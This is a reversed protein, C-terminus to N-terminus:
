DGHEIIRHVYDEPLGPISAPIITSNLRRSQLLTAVRPDAAVTQSVVVGGGRALRPLRAAVSVTTGFYDLHDNLTAVMAPGRHVGVRLRLHSTQEGGALAPGLDLAAQFAAVPESFAAVIGENVTKVLAGGHRKLCDDLRRFQEHILAFARADGMELYLDGAHDLDTVVLTVTALNLLQGPSLVEGPFLERFLALASARAATLADDRPATREVRVVLERDTDNTLAIVQGGARLRRPLETGPGRSLWLDWRRTVATPEVRFDVTFPLQPGRLRYAGEGLALDLAIHEGPGVRVQAAVHPSHAPGGICYTGLETERIEPHARFIVEVSNAFDLEYDLHCAECRGHERLARLTEVVESPIRCIPCLLDWLLLLAGDKAGHMCAAVVQDAALGLRRALALPRIRAVEQAPAQALFDGMREVVMPDIGHQGLTALWRDLRQRRERALVPPPEFPDIVPDHGLEGTLCADIRRYVEDMSRRAQSGIKINAVARGLLGKVAIRVSHTLTTGGDGRPTLEVISVLWQFPGQRFERLVGLRRGEVWEFPHERWSVHLGATKLRGFRKVGEDPDYETAFPVAPLGLARNLRDTNSVHPWLQRPSADLEWRFDFRVLDRPDCEPLRPHVGIGTPEGRLLRELDLLMEGADAYRAEPQKALAKTVVQGVAESVSDNLETLAPPPDNRHKAFLGHMTGGMFPPRGALLHFLTAGMAYVDAPPGVKETGSAQEPAIYYPTGVIAGAQTLVLSETEVVHRALGFDLLKVRLATRPSSTVVTAATSEAPGSLRDPGDEDEDEDQLLLINEPKIDRHIIGREHAVALGRAVDAMIALATPEDLRVRRALVDALSSGRVYELALFHVGDDENLEILNAVFPNNAEALLRAEKYLRRLAEPRRAWYGRLVKIAVPSGDAPDEGRYVAGMGGEGIKEHLLFRGLRARREEHAGPEPERPREEVTVATTDAEFIQCTTLGSAVTSCNLLAALQEVVEHARPRESPDDAIMSRVLADLAPEDAIMSGAELSPFRGVIWWGLLLGLAFVDGPPSPRSGRRAEPPRFDPDPAAPASADVDLGTWDIKLASPAQGAIAGPGLRGHVLGLRHAEALGAAVPCAAAVAGERSLPGTLRLHAGVGELVVYPRPPEPQLEIVRRATSHGLLGALRLRKIRERARSTEEIPSMLAVLEVEVGEERDLARFRVGDRGAGLQNLLQYHGFM